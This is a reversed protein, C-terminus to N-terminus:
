SRGEQTFHVMGTGARVFGSTGPSRRQSPVAEGHILAQRRKELFTARYVKNKAREEPTTRSGLKRNPRILSYTGPSPQKGSDLDEIMKQTKEPISFRFVVREGTDPDPLDIYACTHLFIVASSGYARQCFRSAACNAPDGPIATDIDVPAIVLLIKSVADRVPMGKWFRDLLNQQTATRGTRTM